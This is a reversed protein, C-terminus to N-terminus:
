SIQRKIERLKIDKANIIMLADLADNFLPDRNFGLIKANQNLYKKILIPISSTSKEIDYIVKDLHKFGLQSENIILKEIELLEQNVEYQKRPKIMSAMEYDFHFHKIYNTIMRKSLDSFSNSISVPGLLYQYDSEDELIKLIGEWLMFLPKPKKQFEQVIFSRGLEITQKLYPEFDTKFKFLSNTYFGRKGY